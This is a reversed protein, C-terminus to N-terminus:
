RKISEFLELLATQDQEATQPIVGIAIITDGEHGFSTTYIKVDVSQAGQNATGRYIEVTRPEGLITVSQEDIKQQQDISVGSGEAQSIFETPEVRQAVDISQGLISIQPLSLFVVNGLPAGQYTRSLHVMHANIVVEKSQGQIEFSREFRIEKNAEVEFAADEVTAEEVDIEGATFTLSSGNGLLGSLGGMCGATTVLGIVVLIRLLSHPLM